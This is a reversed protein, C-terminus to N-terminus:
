TRSNKGSHHPAYLKAARGWDVTNWWNDIYTARLNQYKLYYAHEWVDLNLIPFMGTSLLTDQYPTKHISLRGQSDSMLWVWGSGFQTLGANKFEAKFNQPSGWTINIRELLPGGLPEPCKAMSSFFFDHNYVGGGNNRVAAQIPQPLNDLTVLMHELTLNHLNPFGELAKNLNTVYTSVHGEHHIRMTHADIYPELADHAYPLAKLSFPYTM